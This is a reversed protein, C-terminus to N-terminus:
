FSGHITSLISETKDIVWHLQKVQDPPLDEYEMNRSGVLFTDFDSVVPKVLSLLAVWETGSTIPIWM